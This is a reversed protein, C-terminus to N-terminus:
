NDASVKIALLNQKTHRLRRDLGRQLDSNISEAHTTITGPCFHMFFIYIHENFDLKKDIKMGLLKVIKNGKIVEKDLTISVEDEHKTVLLICKDANLKLFNNDFWMLLTHSDSQLNNLLTEINNQITYPTNDDAFNAVTDENVFYFINNIYINFILLGLISGQPVGTELENWEIYM